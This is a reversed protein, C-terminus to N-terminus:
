DKNQKKGNGNLGRLSEGGLLWWVRTWTWSDKKRKARVGCVFILEVHILSKFTLGSVMFIRFSFMPLLIESMAWLFKKDFIDGQVFSVFSFIFLHSKMLSFLNQVVFSFMLLIFLWGLSHSFMNVSVDSLPNIDM